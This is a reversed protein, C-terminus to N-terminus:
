VDRPIFKSICHHVIDVILQEARNCDAGSVGVHDKGWVVAETIGGDQFRRLKCIDKGWFSAFDHVVDGDASNLSRVTVKDGGDKDVRRHGAVHNISLAVTLVWRGGGIVPAGYNWTPSYSHKWAALGGDDDDGSIFRPVIVIKTVRDSLAYHLVDSMCKVCRLLMSDEEYKLSGGQSFMDDGDLCLPVHFFVDYRQALRTKKLFMSEFIDKKGEGTASTEQNQNWLALCRRSEVQLEKLASASVRWLVNFMTIGGIGTTDSVPHLLNCPFAQLWAQKDVFDSCKNINQSTYDYVYSSFKSEALFKLM